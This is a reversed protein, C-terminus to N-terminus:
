VDAGGADLECRVVGFERRVPFPPLPEAEPRREGATVVYEVRQGVDGARLQAAEGRLLDLLPQRGELADLAPHFDAARLPADEDDVVERVVRRRDGRRQVTCPAAVG